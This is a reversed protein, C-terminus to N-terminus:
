KQGCVLLQVLEITYKKLQHINGDQLRNNLVDTWCEGLLNHCPFPAVSSMPADGSLMFLLRALINVIEKHMPINGTFVLLAECLEQHPPQIENGQEDFKNESFVKALMEQPRTLELEEDILEKEKTKRLYKQM